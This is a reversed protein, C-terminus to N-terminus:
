EAALAEAPDVASAKRAPLYSALASAVILIVAVAAYTPLDLPRVEFLLSTMLRTVAAAAGLGLAVGVGALMLGYRVFRRRLARQQAGLALRIAIERRRQSVVYSLVGYLGVVGLVLAVAGAIALMVLTFSTRALSQDYVDQMTRVAALPLSANVSWVAQQMQQVLGQTGALPSRVVFTTARMVTTPEYSYFQQMMSPWYVIAPTPQDLANDRVDQVVGIVERWVTSRAPAIRRGLAAEPTEFLERALNESIMAVRRDDYIDTWAVDRGAVLRTGATQLLGPSIYKFRRIPNESEDAFSPAGEVQLVDWDADRSELPMASVFAASTVGPLAALADVINNQMRVVREPEPEASAPISLRMTQLEAADTFGPDVTLLSQFTRIMLGSSVLLVLALAVQAVVLVNQTRHQRRTGSAGRGGGHLAAVLRPGAYKLAPVAGLVFGALLSVAITLALARADLSIESLRPLNAPGM